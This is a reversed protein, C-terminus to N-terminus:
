SLSIRNENRAEVRRGRLWAILAALGGLLVLAQVVRILSIIWALDIGLGAWKVWLHHPTTALNVMLLTLLLVPGVVLFRFARLTRSMMMM